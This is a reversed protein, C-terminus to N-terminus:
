CTLRRWEGLAKTLGLVIKADHKEPDFIIGKRNVNYGIVFADAYRNLRSMAFIKGDIKKRSIVKTIKNKFNVQNIDINFEDALKKIKNRYEERPDYGSHLWHVVQHYTADMMDALEQLTLGHLLLQQLRKQSDNDPAKKKIV